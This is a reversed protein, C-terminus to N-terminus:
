TDLQTVVCKSTTIAASPITTQPQPQVIPSPPPDLPSGGKSIATAELILCLTTALRYVWKGVVASVFPYVNSRQLESCPALATIFIASFVNSFVSHYLQAGVLERGAVWVSSETMACESHLQILVGIIDGEQVDIRNGPKVHFVSEVEQMEPGNNEVQYSNSGVSLLSGCEDSQTRYVVFTFVVTACDNTAASHYWRTNWQSISGQCTFVSDYALLVLVNDDNTATM